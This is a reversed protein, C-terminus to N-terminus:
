VFPTVTLRSVVSCQTSNRLSKRNEILDTLTIPAKNRDLSYSGEGTKPIVARGDAPPACERIMPFQGSVARPSLQQFVM